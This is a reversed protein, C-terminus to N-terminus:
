VILNNVEEKSQEVPITRGIHDKKVGPKRGLKKHISINRILVLYESVPVKLYAVHKKV